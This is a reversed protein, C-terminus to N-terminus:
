IWKEEVIKIGTQNFYSNFNKDNISGNAIKEFLKIFDYYDKAITLEGNQGYNPIPLECRGGDVVLYSERFVLSGRYFVDLINSYASPDPFQNAWEAKFDENSTIGYAMTIDIDERFVCIDSHSEVKLVNEKGNYAEYFDFKDKYSPGSGYGWCSIRNWQEPESTLIVKLLEDLKM